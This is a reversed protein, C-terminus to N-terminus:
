LGVLVFGGLLLRVDLVAVDRDFHLTRDGRTLNAFFWPPHRCGYGRGQLRFHERQQTQHGRRYDM